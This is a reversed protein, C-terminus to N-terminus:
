ARDPYGPRLLPGRAPKSTDHSPPLSSVIVLGSTGKKCEDHCQCQSALSIDPPITALESANRRVIDHCSTSVWHSPTDQALTTSYHYMATPALEDDMLVM